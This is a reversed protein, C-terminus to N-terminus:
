ILVGVWLCKICKPGSCPKVTVTNWWGPVLRDQISWEPGEDCSLSTSALQGAMACHRLQNPKIVLILADRPGNRHWAAVIPALLALLLLWPDKRLWVRLLARNFPTTLICKAVSRCIVQCGLHSSRTIQLDTPRCHGVAIYEHTM